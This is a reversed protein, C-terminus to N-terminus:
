GETEGVLPWWEHEEMLNRIWKERDEIPGMDRIACLMDEALTDRHEDDLLGSSVNGFDVAVRLEISDENRYVYFDMTGDEDTPYALPITTKMESDKATSDISHGKPPVRSM